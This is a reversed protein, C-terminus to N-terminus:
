VTMCVFLVIGLGRQLIERFHFSVACKSVANSTIELARRADGSSAAVRKSILQLAKHEVINKGLRQELIALIDAEKYAAFVM